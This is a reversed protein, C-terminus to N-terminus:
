SAITDFLDVGIVSGNEPDRYIKIAAYGRIYVDGDEAEFDPEGFAKLLSQKQLTMWKGNVKIKTPSSGVHVYYVLDEYLGVAIDEYQYETYGSYTDKNVSLPKGKKRVVSERNDYLTVDGMSHFDDVTSATSDESMSSLKSSTQQELVLKVSLLPASDVAAAPDHGASASLLGLLVLMMNLM